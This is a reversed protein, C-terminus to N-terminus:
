KGAKAEKEIREREDRDEKQLAATVRASNTKWWDKWTKVDRFRQDTIKVLALGAAIQLEARRVRWEAFSAAKTAAGGGGADDLFDILKPVFAPARIDGSARLAARAVDLDLDDFQDIVGQAQGYDRIKGLADLYATQVQPQKKTAALATAVAQAADHDKAYAGLAAAAEIRVNAGPDGLVAALQALIKRDHVDALKRVADARELEAGKFAKKFAELAAKIEAERAKKADAEAAKAAAPEEAGGHLPAGIGAVVAVVIYLARANM